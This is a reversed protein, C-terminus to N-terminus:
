EGGHKDTNSGAPDKAKLVALGGQRALAAPLILLLISALALTRRM